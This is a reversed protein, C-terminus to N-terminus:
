NCRGRTHTMWGLKENLPGALEGVLAGSDLVIPGGPCKPLWERLLALIAELVEYMGEDREEVAERVYQKLLEIPAIAEPGAEGGAMVKGSDPNIGFATPKTMIGGSKYWDIGFKPISPPNLSFSGDITFHPLKIKPLKWDFKFFDKLKQVTNSVFNKVADLKESIGAKLHEFRELAGSKLKEFGALGKERMSDFAEVARDKLSSIKEGAKEKLENFKSVAKEKLENVKSTVKDKLESIKAETKEKLEQFRAVAKEKM